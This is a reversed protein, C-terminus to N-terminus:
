IRNKKIEYVMDVTVAAQPFTLYIQYSLAKVAILSNRNYTTVSINCYEVAPLM